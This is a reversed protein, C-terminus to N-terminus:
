KEGNFSVEGTRHMPIFPYESGLKQHTLEATLLNRKLLLYKLDDDELWKGCQAYTKKTQTIQLMQKGSIFILTGNPVLKL